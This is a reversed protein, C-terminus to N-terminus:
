DALTELGKVILPCRAENSPEVPLSDVFTKAARVRPLIRSGFYHPETSARNPVLIEQTLRPNTQVVSVFLKTFFQEADNQALLKLALAEVKQFTDRLQKADSTHLITHRNEELYTEKLAMTFVLDRAHAFLEETGKGQLGFENMISNLDVVNEAALAYNIMRQCFAGRGSFENRQIASICIDLHHPYELTQKGLYPSLYQIPLRESKMKAATLLPPIETGLYRAEVAAGSGSLLEATLLSDKVSATFFFLSILEDSVSPTTVASLDRQLKGFLKNLTQTDSTSFLKNHNERIEVEILAMAFALDSLSKLVLNSEDKLQLAQILQKADVLAGEANVHAKLRECFQKNQAEEGRALYNLCMGLHHSSYDRYPSMVVARPRVNRDLRRRVWRPAPAYIADHGAFFWRLVTDSVDAHVSEVFLGLSVVLLVIHRHANKPAM